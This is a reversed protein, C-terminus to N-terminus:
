EAPDALSMQRQRLFLRTSPAEAGPITL